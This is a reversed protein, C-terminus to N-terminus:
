VVAEQKQTESKKNIIRKAKQIPRGWNDTAIEVEEIDPDEKPNKSLSNIASRLSIEDIDPPLIVIQMEPYTANILFIVKNTPKGEFEIEYYLNPRLEYILNKNINYTRKKTITGEEIYNWMDRVERNLINKIDKENIPKREAESDKKFNILDHIKKGFLSILFLVTLAGSIIFPILLSYETSQYIGILIIWSIAFLTGTIFKFWFEKSNEKKEINETEVM